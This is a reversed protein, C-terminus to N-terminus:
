VTVRAQHGVPVASEDWNYDADGPKASTLWSPKHVKCWAAFDSPILHRTYPWAPDGDRHPKGAAARNVCQDILNDPTAHGPNDPTSETRPQARSSAKRCADSCFVRAVKGAVQEIELSCQKCQM